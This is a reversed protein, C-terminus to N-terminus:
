VPLVVDKYQSPGRTALPMHGKSVALVQYDYKETLYEKNWYKSTQQSLDFEDKLDENFTTFSMITGSITIALCSIALALARRCSAYPPMEDSGMTITSQTDIM